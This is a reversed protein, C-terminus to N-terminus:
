SLHIFEESASMLRMHAAITSGHPTISDGSEECWAAFQVPKWYKKKLVTKLDFVTGGNLIFATLQKKNM